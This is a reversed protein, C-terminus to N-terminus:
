RFKYRVNLYFTRLLPSSFVSNYGATFNALTNSFPPNTNLLNRVGFLVTMPRIPKYAAYADWTSQSGVIRQEGAGNPFQDIYSSFFRNSIGAGWKGDRSTWNVRLVHQWRMVPENGQNYWGVLNLVPGGTYEQLHFETIATGELDETFVGYRTYQAYKVSLDVGDTTIGGTNQATQLIYGCTPASFPICEAGLAVSTSLTGAQNLVYQNAFQTPNEYIATSPIGGIANRLLIRYFDLTIGLNHVPEVIAGVDFNESTEPTLDANGGFLALGQSNCVTKTFEANYNGSQCIPNGQGMTGGTAGMFDPGYLSLLSPARFGTSAAARFTVYRSPEYRVALKGNNTTGFDSYRDERDSVDVDLHSSMPVNLEVFLAQQQRSGNVTDPAFATAAFLLNDLPTTATNFTDGSVDFGIAFVANHGADFADGLRHSAHGSVSWRKMSGNVYVGNLYSSNILAQGAASQPGFPNILNSLIAAGTVPDTTPALVAENPNGGDSTGVAKNQSYNLSTTYNWGDNHGYFTLLARQETNINGMYRNNNPDTWIATIPGTLDPPATCNAAGGSCTLQSATPFYTPDAQPTMEFEYFMPGSWTKVESRTYFYQLRLDNNGPLSKTFEFLGSAEKEQPILDTAASYLYACNGFYRTLEPNGTCAPYDAQWLNGNADQVQAPWTGPNNTNILGRGPDFGTAAFSRQAAKLEGQQTYSGTILVNYGDRVLNGHGFSFNLYGSRGGAQQPQNYGADIEGGEYNRKTIFNIVGAIADSGYLASAGERLVQISQIASFPIGSLDVSDATDASNALRHGDLLVLTRGAGLGRLNALSVGGTFAGISAAMNTGPVNASIQDVAQEVNTIGMNRLTAAKIITVAEATQSEPRPIMSGTVVITQLKSPVAITSSPAPAPLAQSQARQPKPTPAPKAHAALTGAGIIAVAGVALARRVALRVSHNVTM